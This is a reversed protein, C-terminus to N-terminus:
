KKENKFAKGIEDRLAKAGQSIIRNVQNSVARSKEELDEDEPPNKGEKEFKWKLISRTIKIEADKALKLLDKKIDNSM